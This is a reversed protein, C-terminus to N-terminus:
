SNRYLYLEHITAHLLRELIIKQLAYISATMTRDTIIEPDLPRNSVMIRRTCAIMNRIADNIEIILERLLNSRQCSNENLFSNLMYSYSVEDLQLAGNYSVEISIPSGTEALFRARRLIISDQLRILAQENENNSSPIIKTILILNIIVLSKFM